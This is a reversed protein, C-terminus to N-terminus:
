KLIVKALGTNNASDAVRIVVLHEGPALKPLDIAFAERESDLVGDAAEVPVWDGADLSYECHRLPSAADAGTFEIRATGGTNRVMGITVVPPTNDILIPASTLQADRAAAPPNSERDSATVRFLYKGDALIDSDFTLSTDHTGGKLLRWETEGDGRFYVSYVLRDGDSDEAQWTITIQDSSARPLTQTPTGASTPADTDTVTVAFAAANIAQKAAAATQVVTINKIVPPTNQPLYALTVGGIVPTAGAAGRLEAEWQIYRANPSTIRAAAPNTLPDSWDSWTRDPTASNGSRTRFELSCGPPLDARWSLSGWRAATGADHVPAEYKGSV